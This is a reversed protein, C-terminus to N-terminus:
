TITLKASFREGCSAFRSRCREMQGASLVDLKRAGADRRGHSRSGNWAQALDRGKGTYILAEDYEGRRRLCRGKWYYAIALLFRNDLEEALSLVFDFHGIAAEMAEEAMAAMGAAM